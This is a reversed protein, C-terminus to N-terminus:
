AKALRGARAMRSIKREGDPEGGELRDVKKEIEPYLLVQVQSGKM